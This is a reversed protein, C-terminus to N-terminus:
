TRHDLASDWVREKGSVFKPLVGERQCHKLATSDEDWALDRDFGGIGDITVGGSWPRAPDTATFVVCGRPSM